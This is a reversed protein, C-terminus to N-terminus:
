RLNQQLNVNKLQDNQGKKSIYMQCLMSINKITTTRYSVGRIMETQLPPYKMTSYMPGRKIESATYNFLVSNLPFHAVLSLNHSNLKFGHELQLLGVREDKINSSM